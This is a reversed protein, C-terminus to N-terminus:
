AWPAEFLVRSGIFPEEPREPRDGDARFVATKQNAPAGCAVSRKPPIPSVDRAARAAGIHVVGIGYGDRRVADVDGLLEM